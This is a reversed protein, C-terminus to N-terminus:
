VGLTSAPACSLINYSSGAEPYVTATFRLAASVHSSSLAHWSQATIIVTKEERCEAQEVDEEDPHLFERWSKFSFWFDYFKDM